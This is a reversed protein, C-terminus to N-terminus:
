IWWRGFCVLRGRLLYAVMASGLIGEGATERVRSTYAGACGAGTGVPLPRPTRLPASLFLFVLLSPLMLCIVRLTHYQRATM